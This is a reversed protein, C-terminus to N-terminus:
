IGLTGILNQFAKAETSGMAHRTGMKELMSIVSKFLYGFLEECSFVALQWDTCEFPGM